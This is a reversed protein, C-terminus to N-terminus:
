TAFRVHFSVACRRWVQAVQIRAGDLKIEFAAEGFSELADDVSEAPSALMPEVPRFMQISYKSLADAGEVLAACAVEGLDGCMMAAQRVADGSVGAARAVAEALVGELAGQRLEGSLLRVLFEQESQTARGFLDTLLRVRAQTVGAGKVCAVREFAEHVEHLELSAEAAPRVARMESIVSWGVGIRGQLLTGSLFAVAIRIEGPAAQRSSTRLRRSRRSGAVHGRSRM